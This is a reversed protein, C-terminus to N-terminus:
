KVAMDIVNRSRVNISVAEPSSIHVLPNPDEKKVEQFVASKDPLQLFIYRKSTKGFFYIEIQKAKSGSMYLACIHLGPMPHPTNPPNGLSTKLCSCDLCCWGCCCHRIGLCTGFCASVSLRHRTMSTMKMFFSSFEALVEQATDELVLHFVDVYSCWLKCEVQSM